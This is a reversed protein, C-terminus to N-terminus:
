EIPKKRISQNIQVQPTQIHEEDESILTDYTEWVIKKESLQSHKAFSFCATSRSRGLFMDQPKRTTQGDCKKHKKATVLSTQKNPFSPELENQDLDCSKRSEQNQISLTGQSLDVNEGDSSSVERSTSNKHKM